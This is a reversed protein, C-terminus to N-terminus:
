SGKSLDCEESIDRDPSEWPSTESYHERKRLSELPSTESSNWRKPVGFEESIEGSIETQSELPSIVNKLSRAVSRDPVGITLIGSLDCEQLFMVMLTRSFSWMRWVGWLQLRLSIELSRAVSKEWPFWQHPGQLIHDRKPVACEQSVEWNLDILSELSSTEWFHSREPIGINLVRCFSRKPVEITLDCEETSLVPIESPDCKQFVEGSSDSLFWHPRNQLVHLGWSLACEEPSRVM